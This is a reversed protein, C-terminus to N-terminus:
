HCTRGIGTSDHVSNVIYVISGIQVKILKVVHQSFKIIQYGDECVWNWSNHLNIECLDICWIYSEGLREGRSARGFNWDIERIWGLIFVIIPLEWWCSSTAVILRRVVLCTIYKAWAELVKGMILDVVVSVSEFGRSQM